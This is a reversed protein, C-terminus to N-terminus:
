LTFLVLKCQRQDQYFEALVVAAQHEQAAALYLLITLLM